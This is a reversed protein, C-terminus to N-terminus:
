ETLWRLWTPGQWMVPRWTWGAATVASILPGKMEPLSFRYAYSLEPKPKGNADFQLGFVRGEQYQFFQIGMTNRWQLTAGKSGASADLMSEFDTARVTRTAEDLHLRIKVSRRLRHARAFDVWRADAFNWTVDIADSGDVKEVSMPTGAGNIALLRRELEVGAIPTSGPQPSNSGAWSGVKFFYLTAVLVNLGIALAIGIQKWINSGKPSVGSNSEGMDGIQSPSAVRVSAEKLPARWPVSFGGTAMRQRITADDKAVWIGVLNRLHLVYVRLGETNTVTYGRQSDGKGGLQNLGTNHLYRVWAKEAASYGDFRALLVSEREALFVQQAFEAGIFADGYFQRVDKVDRAIADPGFLRKVAREREEPDESRALVEFAALRPADDSAGRLALWLCAMTQPLLIVMAYGGFFLLPRPTMGGRMGIVGVLLTVAVCAVFLILYIGLMPNARFLQM